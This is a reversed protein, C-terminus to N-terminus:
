FKSHFYIQMSVTQTQTQTQMLVTEPSQTQGSTVPNVPAEAAMLASTTNSLENGGLNSFFGACLVEMLKLVSEWLWTCISWKVVMVEFWSGWKLWQQSAQIDNNTVLPWQLVSVHSYIQFLRRESVSLTIDGSVPWVASQGRAYLAAPPSGSYLAIYQVCQVCKVCTYM